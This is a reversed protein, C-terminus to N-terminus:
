GHIQQSRLSQNRKQRMKTTASPLQCTSAHNPRSPGRNRQDQLVAAGVRHHERM